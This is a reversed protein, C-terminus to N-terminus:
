SRNAPVPVRGQTYQAMQQRIENETKSILQRIGHLKASAENIRGDPDVSRVLRTTVSPITVLRDVTQELVRLKIKKERMQEFFNQVSLSAQLVKTVQALETGNLNAGIKM